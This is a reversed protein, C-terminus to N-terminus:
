EYRIFYVDKGRQKLDIQYQSWPAHVEKDLIMYICMKDTKPTMAQVAHNRQILEDKWCQGNLYTLPNKRFQIDPTSQIYLPVNEFIVAKDKDSIKNWKAECKTKDTKKGYLDWFDSFSYKEKDEKVTVDLLNCIVAENAQNKSANAENAEKQKRRTEGSKIGGLHGAKSRESRTGEWRQLDRKLQKKIPNFLLGTMRDVPEPNLDNVYRLLHKILKGAEEDTMEEFQDIYDCYLLFSKKGEAM